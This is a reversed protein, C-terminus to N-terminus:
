RSVYLVHMHECVCPCGCVDLIYKYVTYQIHYVTYVYNIDILRLTTKINMNCYNHATWM